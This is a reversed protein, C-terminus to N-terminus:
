ATDAPKELSLVTKELEKAAKEILKSNPLKAGTSHKAVAMAALRRLRQRTRETSFSTRFESFLTGFIRNLYFSNKDTSQIFREVVEEWHPPRQAVMVMLLLVSELSGKHGDVYDTFLAGMKRSFIDDQYWRVVNDLVATIIAKYREGESEIKDFSHDLYFGMGEFTGHKYQALMPSLVALVQCVRMWCALVEELLEAKAGPLVHDSNRLARAAGRMTQVLQFLSSDSIFKSLEQNYPKARDYTRDAFADKVAKPLSSEAVGDAM